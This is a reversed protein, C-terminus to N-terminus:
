NDIGINCSKRIKKFSMGDANKSKRRKGEFSEMQIGAELKDTIEKVKDFQSPYAKDPKKEAM